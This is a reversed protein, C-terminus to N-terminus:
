LFRLTFGLRVYSTSERHELDPSLTGDAQFFPCNADAKNWLSYSEKRRSPEWQRSPCKSSLTRCSSPKTHHCPSCLNTTMEEMSHSSFPARCARRPPAQRNCPPWSRYIWARASPAPRASARCTPLFDM